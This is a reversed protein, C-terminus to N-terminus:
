SNQGGEKATGTGRGAGLGHEGVLCQQQEQRRHGCRSGLEQLQGPGGEGVGPTRTKPERHSVTAGEEPIREEDSEPQLQERQGPAERLWGRGRGLFVGEWNRM